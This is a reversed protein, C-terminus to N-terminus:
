LEVVIKNGQTELGWHQWLGDQALHDKGLPCKRDKGQINVKTM